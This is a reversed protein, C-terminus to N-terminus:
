SPMRRSRAARRMSKARLERAAGVAKRAASLVASNIAELLIERKIGKDREFFDVVALIESNM